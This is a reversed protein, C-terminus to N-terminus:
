CVKTGTLLGDTSFSRKVRHANAGQQSRSDRETAATRKKKLRAPAATRFNTMKREAAALVRKGGAAKGRSGGAGVFKGANKSQWHVGVTCM